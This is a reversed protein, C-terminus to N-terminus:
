QTITLLNSGNEKRLLGILDNYQDELSPNVTVCGWSVNGLHLNAGARKLGLKCLLSDIKNWGPEQLAWWNDRGSKEYPFMNNQGPPIPGYDKVDSSSPNNKHKGRGSHVNDPGLERVEPPGIFNPDNAANSTCKM